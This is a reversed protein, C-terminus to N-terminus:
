LLRIHENPEAERLWAFLIELLRQANPSPSRASRTVLCIEREIVPERLDRFAFVDLPPTAAGLSPIVCIRGGLRMLAHLSFSSSAYDSGEVPVPLGHESANALIAGVGTDDFLEIFREEAIDRWALEATDGALAHDQPVIVGLRDAFLRRYDLEAFGNVRAALGFDIENGLVAREVKDAEAAELSIAVGPYAARFAELVPLLVHAIVSNSAALSVTGRDSKSLAELDAIAGDFDRLLRGAVEKFWVAEKTLEVRRTTRDFLRLGALEELQKITATLSSQTQFLRNAALTFSGTEAVAEFCRLHRLTIRTAKGPREKPDM